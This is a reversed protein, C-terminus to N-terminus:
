PQEVLFNEDNFTAGTAVAPLRALLRWYYDTSPTLGTVTGSAAVFGPSLYYGGAFLVTTSGTTAAAADTWTTGDPSHQAKIAVSTGHEGYYQASASWSLEGSGDSAIVGPEAVAVFSDSSIPEFSADSIPSTNGTGGGVTAAARVREIEIVAAYSLGAFTVTVPFSGAADCQTLTFLNANAGSGFAGAIGGPATGATFTASASVDTEGRRIVIRRPILSLDTTTVNSSNATVTIAPIPDVAVQSSATNDATGFQQWYANSTAPAAPPANGVGPTANIYIFARGDPGNVLDNTRYWATAEYIGKLVLDTAIENPSHVRWSRAAGFTTKAYPPSTREEKSRSYRLAPLTVAAAPDPRAVFFRGDLGVGAQRNCYLALQRALDAFRVQDDVVLNIPYPAAADMAALTGIDLKALDLGAIGALAQVVAGTLRPTATGVVHGRIDGTIVGYNPAGLKILGEALCTAWTGKAVTAAQLATYSAYDAVAPGFASGREYLVDVAEIPGYGSFQFISDVINIPVPEVNQAHGLVLPRPRDKLDSVGQAGGTGLYTSTLVDREFPEIDVSASLALAGNEEQFSGVRGRFAVPWPWATGAPAAYIVVEADPWYYRWADPWANPRVLARMVLKLSAAGPAIPATFDGNFLQMSLSPAEVMAPIWRQGNLGTISRIQASSVRVQVREGRVPDFANISALCHIVAM